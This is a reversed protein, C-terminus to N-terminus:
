DGPRAGSRACLADWLAFDESAHHRLRDLTAGPLDTSPGAPSMNMRGVEPTAGLRDGLFGLAADMRDYRFLHDVGSTGDEESLFRSQRGIRAYEPADDSLWAEVFATFDIDATSQPQGALSPRSRYRYWSSLWDVPERMIAMLEMPRGDQEFVRALQRRYRRVTMHKLRPPNVFSADALPLYAAELATSGTKPVAMLVLRAKWFVLMTRRDRGTACM